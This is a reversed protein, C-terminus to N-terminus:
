ARFGFTGMQVPEDNPVEQYLQEEDAPAMEADVGM